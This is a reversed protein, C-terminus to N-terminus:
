YPPSDDDVTLPGFQEKAKAWNKKLIPKNVSTEGHSPEGSFHCFKEEYDRDKYKSWIKYADSSLPKNVDFPIEVGTRICFGRHQEASKKTSAKPAPLPPQQTPPSSAPRVQQVTVRIETSITLLRQAEESVAAYLEADQVKSIHIGMENNNVQSFEYLNMSTVLAEAENLNDGGALTPGVEVPIVPYWPGM